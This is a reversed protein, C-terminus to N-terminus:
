YRMTSIVLLGPWEKLRFSSKRTQFKRSRYVQAVPELENKFTSLVEPSEQLCQDQVM